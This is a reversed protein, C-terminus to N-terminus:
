SGTATSSEDGGEGGGFSQQGGSGRRDLVADVVRRIGSEAFFSSPLITEAELYAQLAGGLDDRGELDEARAVVSAFRSARMAFDGRMRNLDSDTSYRRYARELIEWAGFANGIRDLEKAQAMAAEVEEMRRMVGLFAENREPDDALAVALRFRDAFISRENGQAILRDFDKSAVSQQDVREILGASFTEIRPNTPWHRVAETMAAEVAASDGRLAANTAKQLALDSLRTATALFARPRTPDFDVALKGAQELLAEARAFDRVELASSLRESVRIYEYIRRKPELPFTKVAPLFEGLQFAEMLRRAATDVEDQSLLFTVTKISGEVDQIAEKSLADLTTTTLKIDLGGFVDAKLGDSGELESEEAPFIYRYFDSAIMAHQFRRQTFFQLIMSQFELRQNLRSTIEAQRNEAIQEMREARRREEPEARYDLSPPGGELGSRGRTMEIFDRRETDRIGRIDSDSKAIEDELRRNESLLDRIRINTQWFSIVRDALTESLRSDVPHDAAVYLLRWAEAIRETTRGGRAGRLRASIEDLLEDYALDDADTAPAANLYKEFRARALQPDGIGFRKGRWELVESEPGIRSIPVLPDSTARPRASGDEIRRDEPPVAGESEPMAQGRLFVALSGMGLLALLFQLKMKMVVKPVM